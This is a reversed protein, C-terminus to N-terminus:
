CEEYIVALLVFLGSGSIQEILIKGRNKRFDAKKCCNELVKSGMKM